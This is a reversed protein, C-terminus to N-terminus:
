IGENFKKEWGKLIGLVESLDPQRDFFMEKMKDYDEELAKINEDKPVIHLSGPKAMDYNAWSSQFFTKKHRVVRDLLALDTLATKAVGSVILQSLDYYHRSLREPMIKGATRYYEAHLLTAKEWFTREVSLVKVNLSPNAFADPFIQAVYSSIDKNVSPWHDSRAGFEIKVAPRIYDGTGKKLIVPYNFLITQLDPDNKDLELVWENGSGLKHSIENELEHMLVDKIIGQCAERLRKIRRKCEKTGVAAEPDNEGGFGLSERSISVDIDESFRKIVDFVKSLSTGGKFIFSEKFSDMSFLLKLIWCVWLDKEIIQPAVHMKGATEIFYDQRENKPLRIFLDM